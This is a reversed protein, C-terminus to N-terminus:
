PMSTHIQEKNDDYSKYKYSWLNQCVRKCDQLLVKSRGTVPVSGSRQQHSEKPTGATPLTNFRAPSGTASTSGGKGWYGPSFHGEEWGDKKYLVRLDKFSWM